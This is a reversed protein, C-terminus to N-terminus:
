EEIVSLSPDPDNLYLKGDSTYCAWDGNTFTVDIRYPSMDEVATVVGEGHVKCFVKQDAVFM